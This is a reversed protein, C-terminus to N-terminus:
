RSPGAIAKWALRCDAIAPHRTASQALRLLGPLSRRRERVWPIGVSEGHLKAPSRTACSGITPVAVVDAARLTAEVSTVEGQATNDLTAQAREGNEM